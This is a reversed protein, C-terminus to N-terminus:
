RNLTYLLSMYIFKLVTERDFSTNFVFGFSDLKPGITGRVSKRLCLKVFVCFCM